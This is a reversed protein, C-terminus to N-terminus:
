MIMFMTLSIQDIFNGPSILTKASELRGALDYGYENTGIDTINGNADYLYSGSSWYPTASGKRVTISDLLL